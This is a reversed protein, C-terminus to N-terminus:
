RVDKRRFLLRVDNIAKSLQMKPQAPVYQGLKTSVDIEPIPTDLQLVANIVRIFENAVIANGANNAHVGDLSFATTALDVMVFKGTAGDIGSVNLLTFAANADVVFVQFTNELTTITANFGDVASKITSAETSTLTM